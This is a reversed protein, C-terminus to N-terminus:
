LYNKRKETVRQKGLSTNEWCSSNRRGTNTRGCVASKDWGITEQTVCIVSQVTKGGLSQSTERSAHARPMAQDGGDVADHRGERHVHAEGGVERATSFPLFHNTILNKNKIKNKIESRAKRVALPTNRMRKGPTMEEEVSPNKKRKRPLNKTEKNESMVIVCEDIECSGGTRDVQHSVEDRDLAEGQEDLEVDDVACQEVTVHDLQRPDENSLGADTGEVCHGGGATGPRDKGEQWPQPTPTYHPTILHQIQLSPPHHLSVLSTPRDGQAMNRALQPSPPRELSILLPPRDGQATNRALKLTSHQEVLSIPPPSNGGQATNRALQPTAHQDLSVHLPPKAGQSTNRAQQATPSQEVLTHSFQRGGMVKHEKQSNTNRTPSPSPSQEQSPPKPNKEKKGTRDVDVAADGVASKKTPKVSCVVDDRVDGERSVQGGQEQPGQEQSHEERAEQDKRKWMKMVDKISRMNKPPEKEEVKKRPKSNKRGEEIKVEKAPKRMMKRWINEEQEQMLNMRTNKGPTM